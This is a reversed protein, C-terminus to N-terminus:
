SLELGNKEWKAREEEQSNAMHEILSLAESKTPAADAFKSESDHGIPLVAWQETGHTIQKWIQWRMGNKDTKYYTKM